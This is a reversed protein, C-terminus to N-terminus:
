EWSLFIFIIRSRIANDAVEAKEKKGLVPLTPFIMTELPM